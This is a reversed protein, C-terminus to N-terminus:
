KYSHIFLLKNPNQFYSVKITDYLFLIIIEGGISMYFWRISVDNSLGKGFIVTALLCPFIALVTILTMRNCQKTAELIFSELLPKFTLLINLDSAKNIMSIIFIYEIKIHKQSMKRWKFQMSESMSAIRGGSFLLFHSECHKREQLSINQM